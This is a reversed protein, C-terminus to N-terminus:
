NPASWIQKPRPTPWEQRQPEALAFTARRVFVSLADTDQECKAFEDLLKRGKTANAILKRERKGRPPRTVNVEVMEPPVPLSWRTSRTTESM